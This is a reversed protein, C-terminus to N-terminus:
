VPMNMIEQYAAILRNRVQTVAELELSAKQVSVMVEPLSVDPAGAVFRASQRDAVRQTENVEALSERLLTSFTAGPAGAAGAATTGGAAGASTTRSAASPGAAGEGGWPNGARETLARMQALVQRIQMDSM